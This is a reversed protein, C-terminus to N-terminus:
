LKEIPSNTASLDTINLNSNGINSSTTWPTISSWKEDQNCQYSLYNTTTIVEDTCPAFESAICFAFRGSNSCAASFVGISENFTQDISVSPSNLISADITYHAVEGIKNMVYMDNKHIAIKYFGDTVTMGSPIQSLKEARNYKPDNPDPCILAGTSRYGWIEGNDLIGIVLNSGGYGTEGNFVATTHVEIDSIKNTWTTSPFYGDVLFPTQEVGTEEIIENINDVGTPFTTGKSNTLSGIYVSQYNKNQTTGSIFLLGHNSVAIGKGSSVFGPDHYVGPACWEIHAPVIAHSYLRNGTKANIPHIKLTGNNNELAVAYQIANPYVHFPVNETVNGPVTKKTKPQVLEQNKECSTSSIIIASLVIGSLILNSKKM